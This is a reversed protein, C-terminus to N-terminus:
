IIKWGNHSEATPLKMYGSMRLGLITTSIDFETRLVKEGASIIFYPPTESAFSGYIYPTYGDSQVELTKPTTSEVFAGTARDFSLYTKIGSIVASYGPTGSFKIRGTMPSLTVYICLDGDEPYVYEGDYCYYIGTNETFTINTTTVNHQGDFYYAKVKRPTECVLKSKYGNYEVQGWSHQSANYQIYAQVKGGDKDELILYIRDGDQWGDSAARTLDGDSDFSNCSINVSANTSHWGDYDKEINSKQIDDGSCASFMQLCAICLLIGFLSYIRKM